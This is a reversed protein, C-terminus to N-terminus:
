TSWFLCQTGHRWLARELWVSVLNSGGSNLESCCLVTVVDLTFRRRHKNSSFAKKKERKRERREPRQNGVEGREKSKNGGKM